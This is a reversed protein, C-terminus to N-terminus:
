LGQSTEIREDQLNEKLYELGRGNLSSIKSKM